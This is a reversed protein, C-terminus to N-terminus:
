YSFQGNAKPGEARFAKVDWKNLDINLDKVVQELSKPNISELKLNNLKVNDIKQEYGQWIKYRSNIRRAQRYSIDLEFMLGEITKYLSKDAKKANEKLKGILEETYKNSM